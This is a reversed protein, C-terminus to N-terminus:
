SNNVAKVQQKNKVITDLAHNYDRPNMDEVSQIKYHKLLRAELENHGMLANNLKDIHWQDLYQKATPQTQYSQTKNNGDDDEPDQAESIGLMNKLARRRYYTEAKGYTQEDEKVTKIRIEGRMNQGSAQWLNTLLIPTGDNDIRTFQNISLGHKTCAARTAMHIDEETAFRSKFFPNYGTALLPLYEGQAKSLATAIQDFQNVTEM